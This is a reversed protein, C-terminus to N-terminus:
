WAGITPLLRRACHEAGPGACGAFARAPRQELGAQAVVFQNQARGAHQRRVQAEVDHFRGRAHADPVVPDLGEIHACQRRLPAAVEEAPARRARKSASQLRRDSRRKVPRMSARVANASPKASSTLEV